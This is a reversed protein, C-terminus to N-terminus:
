VVLAQSGPPRARREDVGALYQHVSAVVQAGDGVATAVRKPAGSRIDGVAFIGARSTELM